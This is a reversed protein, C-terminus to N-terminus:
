YGRKIMRKQADRHNKIARKQDELSMGAVPNRRPGRDYRSGRDYGDREYRGRREYGDRRDYGRRGEYSPGAEYGGRYYQASAPAAWFMASTGLGICVLLARVSIKM